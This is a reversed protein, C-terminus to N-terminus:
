APTLRVPLLECQQEVLQTVVLHRIIQKIDASADTVQEYVRALVQGPTVFEAYYKAVASHLGLLDLVKRGGWIHFRNALVPHSKKVLDRLKDFCGTEPRGSPDINTAIIWNDPWTRNTHPKEFEALEEKVRDILWKQVNAGPSIAMFKSQIYWSGSWGSKENPYPASGEFFGDRGGDAGPGFGTHGAGLVALALMNIMHEFTHPGLKTLDYSPTPV